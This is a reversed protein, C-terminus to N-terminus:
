NHNHHVYGSCKLSVMPVDNLREFQPSRSRVAKVIVVVVVIAVVISFICLVAILGPNVAVDQKERDGQDICSLSLDVM